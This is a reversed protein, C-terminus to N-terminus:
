YSADETNDAIGLKVPRIVHVIFEIWNNFFPWKNLKSTDSADNLLRLVSSYLEIQDRPTASFIVKDDM